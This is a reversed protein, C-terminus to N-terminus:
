TKCLGASWIDLDHASVQGMASPMDGLLRPLCVGGHGVEELCGDPVFGRHNLGDVMAIDEALPEFLERRPDASLGAGWMGGVQTRGFVPKLGAAFMKPLNMNFRTAMKLVHLRMEM